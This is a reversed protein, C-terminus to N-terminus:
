AESLFSSIAEGLVKGHVMVLTLHGGPLDVLSSGLIKQLEAAGRAPVIRDRRARIILTGAKVEPLLQRGDFSKTAQRQAEFAYSPQGDAKRLIPIRSVLDIMFWRWSFRRTVPPAPATAALVLHNVLEPHGAALQLAIKGGMSYGVVDARTMGLTAFLGAVDDAMQEISYGGTPKDSRGGGRPDVVVVQRLPALVPVVNSFLRTDSGLGPILVIPPGDGHLEYYLRIDGVQAYPM